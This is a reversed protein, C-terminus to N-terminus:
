NVRIGHRITARHSCIRGARAIKRPRNKKSGVPVNPKPWKRFEVGKETFKVGASSLKEEIAILTADQPERKGVELDILTARHIRAAKALDTQSLGLLARAARVQAAFLLFDRMKLVM